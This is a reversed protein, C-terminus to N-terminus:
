RRRWAYGLLGIAGLGLLVLTSPEPITDVAFWDVQSTQPTNNGPNGYTIGVYLDQSNDLGAASYWPSSGQNGNTINDWSMSWQGNVRALALDITDGEAFLPPNGSGVAPDGWVDGGLSLLYQHGTGYWALHLAARAWQGNSTGAYIGLHDSPNPLHVNVLRASITIDNSAVNPVYLGVAELQPWTSSESLSAHTSTITLYGPQASLNLNTDPIPLSTGTGPLRDTLGTGLGNADAITGPVPADFDLRIEAAGSYPAALGLFVTCWFTAVLASCHHALLRFM